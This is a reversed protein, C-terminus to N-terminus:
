ANLYDWRKFKSCYPVLCWDISIDHKNLWRMAIRNKYFYSLAAGKGDPWINRKKLWKLVPIHEAVCAKNACKTNPIIGESTELWELINIHGGKCAGKVCDITIKQNNEKLLILIELDGNQALDKLNTPFLNNNIFLLLINKTYPLYSVAKNVIEQNIPIHHDFCWQIINLSNDMVARGIDYQRPKMGKSYLWEVVVLSNGSCAERFVASTLRLQNKSELLQLINLYGHFSAWNEIIHHDSYEELYECCWEKRKPRYWESPHPQHNILWIAASLLNHHLVHKRIEYGPSIEYSLLWELVEWKEKILAKNAGEYNPRTKKEFFKLIDLFGNAAAINLDDQTIRYGKRERYLIIDVHPQKFPNDYYTLIRRYQQKYNENSPKYDALDGLFPKWLTHDTSLHNLRHNVSSLTVITSPTSNQLILLDIEDIGIM